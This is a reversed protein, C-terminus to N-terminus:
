YLKIDKQHKIPKKRISFWCLLSGFTVTFTGYWFNASLMSNLLWASFVSSLIPTFYALMILISLNGKIIGVNWALYGMSFFLANIVIIFYASFDSVIPLSFGQTAITLIWLAIATLIFYLSVANIGNSYKKVYISYAAWMVAALFILSYSLPDRYFNDIFNIDPHYNILIIGFFSILIGIISLLNFKEDKLLALMIISLTPWTNFLIYMEISKESSSAFTISFAFFLEFTVFLLSSIILFKSPIQKLHPLGYFLFLIVASLTYVYTVTYLPGFNETSLRLLGVLTAWLILALVGILTSIRSNM